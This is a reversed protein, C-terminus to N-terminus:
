PQHGRAQLVKSLLELPNTETATRVQEKSLGAGAAVRQAFDLTVMDGPEHTDTNVLMPAGTALCIRAVHGNTLSHGKRTTIEIYCGRGAAIRAEALTLFGPHALVDVAASEVAARNTGPAVPEVPSEGHVVVVEAGLAKARRALRDISGPAVHTLEVGVLLEAGFDDPQERLLRWLSDILFALNSADAHDTIALARYGMVTARRMQESPLLVGDSLITHSHFDIMGTQSVM